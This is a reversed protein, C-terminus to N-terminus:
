PLTHLVKHKEFSKVYESPSCGIAISSSRYFYETPIDKVLRSLFNWHTWHHKSVIKEPLVKFLVPPVTEKFGMGRRAIVYSASVHISLGKQKMYKMKGIQSTYAPNVVFVEIAEKQFKIDISSIIKIYAFQSIKKNCSPNEYKIKSKLGDLDLNERILPKNKEKVIAVLKCVANEIIKSAQGSSKDQLDYDIIGYDVLNGQSDTESWAFHDYNIDVGIVGDTKCYNKYKEEQIDVAVKLIYYEVHDEITWTIPKKMLKQYTLAYNIHEQGYPFSVGKFTVKNVENVVFDLVKNIHDYKFAFNGYKADKRGSVQFSSYRASDYTEKWLDHNNQYEEITYQNLFLKSSGFIAGKFSKNKLLELKSQLRKISEEILAIRNRLNKIQPVLYMHEFDYLSYYIDTRYKYSVCYLKDNPSFEKDNKTTVFKGQKISNHIKEKSTAYRKLNAIKKKRTKIQTEADQIYKNQLEKQSKIIGQALQVASNAFYDNLKFKEKVALHVSKTLKDQGREKFLLLKYAYHKARNATKLTDSVITIDDASLNSKYIRNSFYTFVM